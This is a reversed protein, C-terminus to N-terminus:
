FYTELQKGAPSFFLMNHLNRKCRNTFVTM